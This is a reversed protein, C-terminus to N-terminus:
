NRNLLIASAVLGATEARLIRPGLSVISIPAGNKILERALDIEADSFGGEPGVFINVALLKKPFTVRELSSGEPHLILIMAESAAGRRLARGFEEIELIEPKIGRESQEAAEKVVKEARLVNFRLKESRESLVPHFNTVGVETCKEFVWEIKDKKILSQYLAIKLEPEKDNWQRKMIEVHVERASVKELRATYEFGDGDLLILMDGPSLRLVRGIQKALDPDPIRAYRGSIFQPPIFFRHLKM